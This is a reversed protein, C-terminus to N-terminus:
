GLKKRRRGPPVYKGRIGILTPRQPPNQGSFIVKPSPPPLKEELSLASLKKTPISKSSKPNPIERNSITKRMEKFDKKAAIMLATNKELDCDELALTLMPSLIYTSLLLNMTPLDNLRAAIMVINEGRKNKQVLITEASLYAKLLYIFNTNRHEAAILVATDGECNKQTLLTLHDKIRPGGMLTMITGIHLNTVALMLPTFGKNNQTMLAKSLDENKKLESLFISVVGSNKEEYERKVAIMLATNGADNKLHIDAGQQILYSVVEGYGSQVAYMLPTNNCVGRANINASHELARSIYALYEEESQAATLHSLDYDISENKGKNKSDSPMIMRFDETIPDMMFEM